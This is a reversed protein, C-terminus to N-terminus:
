QISVIEGTDKRVALIWYGYAAMRTELPCGEKNAELNEAGLRPQWLTFGSRGRDPYEDEIYRGPIAFYYMEDHHGYLYHRYKAANKQAGPSLIPFGKMGSIRKWQAGTADNAFPLIPEVPESAQDLRKCYEKLYENYYNNYTRAVESATTNPDAVKAPAGNVLVEGYNRTPSEKQKESETGRAFDRGSDTRILAGKLVPHLPEDDDRPSVAAVIAVAYDDLCNGKGDVDAPDFRYYNDGDGQRNINVTGIVAYIAREKKEGLLILKYIYRGREFYRLNKVLLSMAGKNNGTEIKLNGRIIQERRGAFDANEEDLTIVSKRYRSYNCEVYEM